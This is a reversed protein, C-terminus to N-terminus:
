ICLSLEERPKPNEIRAKREMQEAQAMLAQTQPTPNLKLERLARKSLLNVYGPNAPSPIGGVRQYLRMLKTTQKDKSQKERWDERQRVPYQNTVARGTISHVSHRELGELLVACVQKIFARFRWFSGQVAPDIMLLKTHIVYGPQEGDRPLLEFDFTARLEKSELRYLPVDRREYEASAYNLRVQHGTTKKLNLAGGTKVIANLVDREFPDDSAEVCTAPYPDFTM